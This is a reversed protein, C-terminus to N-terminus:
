GRDLTFSHTLSCNSKLTKYVAFPSMLVVRDLTLSHALSCNSKLTRYVACPSMLVVRDLATMCFHVNRKMFGDELGTLWILGFVFIFCSM